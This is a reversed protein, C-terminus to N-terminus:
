GVIRANTNLTQEISVLTKVSKMKVFSFNHNGIWEHTPDEIETRRITDFYNYIDELPTKSFPKTKHFLPSRSLRDMLDARTAPKLNGEHM